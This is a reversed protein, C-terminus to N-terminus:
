YSKVLAIKNTHRWAVDSYQPVKRRRFPFAKIQNLQFPVATPSESSIDRFLSITFLTIYLMLRRESQQMGMSRIM